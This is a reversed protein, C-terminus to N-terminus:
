EGCVKGGKPFTRQLCVKFSSEQDQTELPAGLELPPAQPCGLGWKLPPISPTPGFVKRSFIRKTGFIGIPFEQGFLQAGQFM